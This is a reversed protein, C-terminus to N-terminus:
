FQVGLGVYGRWSFDWGSGVKNVFGAYFLLSDLDTDLPDHWKIKVGVGGWVQQLPDGMPTAAIANVYASVDRGTKIPAIDTSLAMYTNSDGVRWAVSYDLTQADANKALAFAGVIVALAVILSLLLRKM